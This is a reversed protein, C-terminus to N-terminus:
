GGAAIAKSLEEWRAQVEAHQPHMKDILIANIKPDAWMETQRQRALGPTLGGGTGQGAGGGQDEGLKSGIQHFLKFLGAPGLSAEMKSLTAEDVGFERVARKATEFNAEYGNGWERKLSESAKAFEAAQAAETEAQRAGTREVVWKMTEEYQRATLGLKHAHTSFENVLPDAKIADPVKYGDPKDPRGLKGYVANWGAEDTDDKPIVMGRGAKDAGLLTELGRYSALADDPSKWGKAEVLNKNAEGFWPAPPPPASEGAGAPAPPNGALATAASGTAETM